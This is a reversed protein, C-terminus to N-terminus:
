VTYTSHAAISNDVSFVSDFGAWKFGQTKSGGQSCFDAVTPDSLCGPKIPVKRQLEFPILALSPPVLYSEIRGDLGKRRMLIWRCMYSNPVMSEFDNTYSIAQHVCIRIEGFDEAHLCKTYPQNGANQYDDTADKSHLILDCKRDISGVYDTAREFHKLFVKCEKGAHRNSSLAHVEGIFRKSFDKDKESVKLTYEIYIGARLEVGKISM